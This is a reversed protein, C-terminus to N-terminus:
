QISNIKRLAYWNHQDYYLNWGMIHRPRKTMDEMYQEIEVLKFGAKGSKDLIKEEQFCAYGGWERELSSFGRKSLLADFILIGGPKLSKNANELFKELDNEGFHQSVQAMYICDFKEDKEWDDLVNKDSHTINGGLGVQEAYEKCRKQGAPCIETATINFGLAAVPIANRGDGSGIDLVKANESNPFYQKLKNLIFEDPTSGNYGRKEYCRKYNLRNFKVGFSPTKIGSYNSYCPNQISINM